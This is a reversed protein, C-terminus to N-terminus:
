RRLGRLRDKLSTKSGPTTGRKMVIFGIDVPVDGWDRITQQEVTELGASKAESVVDKLRGHRKPPEVIRGSVRNWLDNNGRVLDVTLVVVGGPNTRAAMERLLARRDDAVLHEIVSLCYVGDFTADPPM